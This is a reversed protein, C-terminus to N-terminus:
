QQQGHGDHWREWSTSALRRRAKDWAIPDVSRDITNLSRQYCGIAANTRGVHQGLQGIQRELTAWVRPHKSKTFVRQSERFCETGEDIDGPGARSALIEGSKMRCRAWQMRHEGTETFVRVTAKRLLELAESSWRNQVALALKSPKTRSEQWWMLFEDIDVEGSGDEDMVGMAEKLEKKKLPAGLREAMASIEAADLTGGGDEDLEAFLSRARAEAEAPSENASRTAEIGAQHHCANALRTAAEAWDVSASPGLSEFTALSEHLQVLAAEVNHERCHQASGKTGWVRRLLVSGLELQLRAHEATMYVREPRQLHARLIKTYARQAAKLGMVSMELVVRPDVRRGIGTWHAFARSAKVVHAIAASKRQFDQLRSLVEGPRLRVHASASLMGGNRDHLVSRWGKMLSPGPASHGIVCELLRAISGSLTQETKQGAPSCLQVLAHQLATNMLETAHDALLTAAPELEAVVSWCHAAAGTQGQAAHVRAKHEWGVRRKPHLAVGLAVDEAAGVLDGRKLKAAAREAHLLGKMPATAAPNPRRLGPHELANGSALQLTHAYVSEEVAARRMASPSQAGGFPERFPVRLGTGGGRAAVARVGNFIYIVARRVAAALDLPDLDPLTKPLFFSDRCIAGQDHQKPESRLIARTLLLDTGRLM